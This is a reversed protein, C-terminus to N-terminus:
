VALKEPFEPIHRSILGNKLLNALITQYAECPTWCGPCNNNQILTRLRLRNTSKWLHYFNMDYERLSGLPEDFMSCPFVIGSPNIFCSAAAAQCSLNVRRHKLYHQVHQQYRGEIFSIPNFISRKRLVNIRKVEHLAKEQDPLAETYANDYYHGSAHAINIHFDEISVDGLSNRCASLTEDFMGLNASQITHGFYVSFRKSRISRLQKFTQVANEWSGSIGRIRDHLEATGDLSVSVILRPLRTSNLILDVASVIADTQFGNTPFNLLYLSPSRKIITTFIDEIDPRQFLEGGTLNIWSFRNAKSFLSDIEDLSLEDQVPKQWINCMTCRAQCRNTVSYTLRYPRWLECLNSQAIKFVFGSLKIISM